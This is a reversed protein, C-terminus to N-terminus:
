ESKERAAKRRLLLLVAAVGLILAAGCLTWVWAFNQGTDPLGSAEITVDYTISVGDVTYTITSTGAKLATFTAPSNFTATFFSHDWDWDGGEMNPTLVIRGGVFIKGDADSSTLRPQATWKAYLTVTAGNVATLNLVNQGNSYVAAGTPSTAWGAFTYNERTFGNATLAKETDYTHSGSVTTGTGGNADYAVTYTNPTWKAFLTKDATVLTSFDYATAFSDGTYWGGFSHGTWTPATPESVATYYGYESDVASGGDVDFSVEFPTMTVSALSAARVASDSSEAFVKLQPYYWKSDNAKTTYDDTFDLDTMNGSADTGTMQATDLGTVSASGLGIASTQGTARTDFYSTDVTGSDYYGILGGIMTGAGTCSVAGRAYCSYVANDTSGMIENCGVLGGVANGTTNGGSVSGTAYCIGIYRRNYGAMGGIYSDGKGTVDGTAFCSQVSSMNYGVFGGSYSNSGASVDGTAFCGYYDNQESLGAFGGACCNEGGVVSGTAWCGSIVLGPTWASYSGLFGGACTTEGETTVDGTAYSDTIDVRSYYIGILGGCSYINSTMAVDGTASCNSFIDGGSTPYYYGVLGGTDSGGTVTADSSCTIISGTAMATLGGANSDSKVIGSVHCNEIDGMCVGALLAAHNGSGATYVSGEVSLNRIRAYTDATGFLGGLLAGPSASTGVALNSVTHGSGDFIGNFADGTGIPTWQRGDLDIDDDLSVSIGAFDNGNNVLTALGAIQEATTLIFTTEAANYWSTDATGDWTDAALAAVPFMSIILMATICLVLLRQKM